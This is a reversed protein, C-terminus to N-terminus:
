PPAVAQGDTQRKAHITPGGEGSERDGMPAGTGAGAGQAPSGNGSDGEDAENKGINKGNKEVGSYFEVITEETQSAELICDFAEALGTEAESPPRVQCFLREAEERDIIFEHSPYGAVLKELAGAQLNGRDLREGYRQGIMMARGIEGLRMPDLQAYVEKFLGVTLRVALLAATKTLIQGGSRRKLNLFCDEFSQFAEVRLSTLAQM